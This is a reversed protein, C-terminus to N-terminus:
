SREHGNGRGLLDKMAALTVELREIATTLRGNIAVQQRNFERQEELRAL